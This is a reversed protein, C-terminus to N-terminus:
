HWEGIIRIEPELEIGFYRFVNLKVDEMLSLFDSATGKGRNLFFNAHRESVEIDGRRMGKCGAEDILSGAKAGEPNKFVCGASWSTLPQRKRKEELFSSIRESVNDPVDKRLRIIASLILGEPVESRRYGFGLADRKIISINGKLDMVAISELCDGIEFGFSGANGKIAGGLSGPIGALGEIGSLGERKSIELLRQLSTGAEVFLRASDRDSEIVEARKLSLSSIVAGRIGRDSVLVNSGGGLPTIPIGKDFLYLLLYKLSLVDEPVAYLDAPGGIRLTTHSSMEENLCLYGKFYPSIEEIKLRFIMFDKATGGRDEM